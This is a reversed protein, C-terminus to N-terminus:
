KRVRPGAERETNAFLVCLCAIVIISSRLFSLVLSFCLFEGKHVVLATTSGPLVKVVGIVM